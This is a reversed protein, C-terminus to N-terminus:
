ADERSSVRASMGWSRVPWVGDVGDELTFYFEKPLGHEFSRLMDSFQARNVSLSMSLMPAGGVQHLYGADCGKTEKRTPATLMVATPWGNSEGVKKLLVSLVVYSFEVSHRPPGDQVEQGFHISGLGLIEGEWQGTRIKQPKRGRANSRM